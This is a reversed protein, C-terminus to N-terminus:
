IAEMLPRLNSFGYMYIIECSIPQVFVATCFSYYRLQCHMMPYEVNVSVENGFDAWLASCIKSNNALAGTSTQLAIYDVLVSM